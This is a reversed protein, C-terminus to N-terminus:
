MLHTCTNDWDTKYKAGLSLAKNRLIGRDPNQIGSIVLVVGRLLQDFPRYTKADAVAKVKKSPRETPSSPRKKSRNDEETQSQNAKDTNDNKTETQKKEKSELLQPPNVSKRKSKEAQSQLELRRRERDVEIQKSLREQKSQNAESNDVIDNDKGFLLDNRNRDLIHGDNETPRTTQNTSVVDSLRRQTKTTPNKSALRISAATTQGSENGKTKKWRNFLSSSNETESDPSDERFKLKGISFSSLLEIPESSSSTKLFQAPVLNKSANSTKSPENPSVHVKIFSLGYSVHKNFPQTCLIKVLSWKNAAATPVLAEQNFCRVRNTNTSSKSEPPTM